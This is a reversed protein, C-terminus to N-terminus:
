KRAKLIKRQILSNLYCLRALCYEDREKPEAEFKALDFEFANRLEKLRWTDMSKYLEVTEQFGTNM